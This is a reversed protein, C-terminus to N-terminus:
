FKYRAGLLYQRGQHHYYSLRDGAAGVWQDQFEDTLNLAELTLDLAPTVTWTASFDLNLTEITGEVDNNNRGPVTTLYEDRYAASVRASFVENEWYLTANYASKSLGTLDDKVTVQPQAVSNIIVPPALYEIESEVGTYNLIVGFHSFFGPLFTFPQQYSIEFGKSTAATPTPRCTSSGATSVRRRIPFRPAAPRRACRQGASRAYQQLLNDRALPHDARLQEIDKYFLALSLLSGRRLVVRVGPRVGQRSVPELEPNGATVTKNAGTITVAAGPALIGLGTAQGGGNPRAMVKAAAARVLFSDTM